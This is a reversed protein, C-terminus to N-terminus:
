WKGEKYGISISGDIYSEDHQQRAKFEIAKLEIM